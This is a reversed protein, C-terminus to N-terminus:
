ITSVRLWICFLVVGCFQKNAIHVAKALKAFAHTVAIVGHGSSGPLCCKPSATGELICGLKLFPWIHPVPHLPHRLICSSNYISWTGKWGPFIRMEWLKDRVVEDLYNM